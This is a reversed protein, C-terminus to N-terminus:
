SEAALRERYEGAKDPRGWQNYLVVLEELSRNVIHQHTEDDQALSQAIDLSKLLFSEAEEYHGLEVQTSGLNSYATVTRLPHVHSASEFITVAKRYVQEARYHQATEKYVNGLEQLVQGIMVHRDGIAHHLIELAEHYLQEALIFDGRYRYLTALARVILGTDLYKDGHIRRNIELAEHLIDEAEEYAHKDLLTNGLSLLNRAGLRTDVMENDRYIRLAEYHRAISGEPDGLHRRLIGLSYNSHAVDPHDPGFLLTRIQLAEHHLEESAHYNRRADEVYGMNELSAAYEASINDPDMRFIEVAQEFHPIARRYDGLEHLVVGLTYHSLALKNPSIGPNEERLEIARELIPVAEEYSGISWYIRGILQMMATQVEPQDALEGIREAGRDLLDRATINEGRAESPDSAIFMDALFTSVQEAREAERKAIDREQALQWTYYATLSVAGLIIVIGTILARSHRRIFKEFRYHVSDRRAIVPLNKRCRIIDDYMQGANEYRLGPEKHLAKLTIADIDKWRGEPFSRDSVTGPRKHMSPKVPDENRVINEIQRVTLGDLKFPYVGAILEYLLLGLGYVDTATTIQEGTLQEPAAHYLSMARLGAQTLDKQDPATEENLLKAIGFDLIKVEGERTVLINDPKLDRHVILNKHAYRLADCIKLFLDIRQNLSSNHERCWELLPLGDIYEMALWPLGDETYGGDYLRAINPHELQALIQREMKFRHISSANLDNQRYIRRLLKLAVQQKYSGDAREARYVIGMGGEGLIKLLRWSGVIEGTREQDDAPPNNIIAKLQQESWRRWDEWFSESNDISKLMGIVETKLSTDKGCADHIFRVRDQPQLTLAKDIITFLLQLRNNEM